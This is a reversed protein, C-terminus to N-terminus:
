GAPTPPARRRPVADGDSAPTPQVQLDAWITDMVARRERLIESNWFRRMRFGQTALWADRIDDRVTEARQSGDAEVILRREFCVFDAIYAGLPAQRRFKFGSFRRDRLIKWLADEAPTPASRM